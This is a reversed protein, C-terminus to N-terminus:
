GMEIKFEKEIISWASETTISGEASFTGIREGIVNDYAEANIESRKLVFTNELPIKADPSILARGPMAVDETSYQGSGLRMGDGYLQYSILPITFTKDSPNTILFTVVLKASSEVTNVERIQVDVLEIEVKELQPNDLSAYWVIGGLLALMAGIAAYVTIKSQLGM